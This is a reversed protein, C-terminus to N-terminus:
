GAPAQLVVWTFPQVTGWPTVHEVREDHLLVFGPGLAEALGAADYRCTPLGSCTEPGDPAFTAIVVRGGPATRRVQDAYTARDAPETLFHFVARDHWVDYTTDPVWTLVDAAVTTLRTAHEEVRHHVLALASVSLDLATVRAVGLELLEDALRSAGAGVDIVSGPLRDATVLRVSTAPSPEYWSVEDAAKAAYVGEWHQRGIPSGTM